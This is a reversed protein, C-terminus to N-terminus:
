ALGKWKRWREVLYAKASATQVKAVCAESFAEFAADGDEGGSEELDDWLRSHCRGDCSLGEAINMCDLCTIYEVEEGDEDSGTVEEHKADTPIPRHCECCVLGDRSTTIRRSYDEIEYGFNGGICVGCESM